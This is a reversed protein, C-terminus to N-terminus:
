ILQSEYEKKITEQRLSDALAQQKLEDTRAQEQDKLIKNHIAIDKYVILYNHSYETSASKLTADTALRKVFRQIYKWDVDSDRYVRMFSDYDYRRFYYKNTKDALAIQVNSTTWIKSDIQYSEYDMVYAGGFNLEVEEPIAKVEKYDETYGMGFKDAYMKIINSWARSNQINEVDMVIAYLKDEYFITATHVNYMYFTSDIQVSLKSECTRENHSVSRFIDACRINSCEDRNVFLGVRGIEGSKEMQELRNIVLDKSMGLEFGLYVKTITSDLLAKIAKSKEDEIEQQLVTANNEVIIEECEEKRHSNSSNSQCAIIIITFILVVSKNM